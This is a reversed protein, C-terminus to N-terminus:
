MSIDTGFSQLTIQKEIAPNFFTFRYLYIDLVVQRASVMYLSNFSVYHVFVSIIVFEQTLAADEGEFCSQLNAPFSQVFHPHQIM